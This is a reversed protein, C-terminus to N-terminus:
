LSDVTFHTDWACWFPLFTEVNRAPMIFPILYHFYIRSDPQIRLPQLQTIQMLFEFSPIQKEVNFHLTWTCTKYHFYTFSSRISATSHSLYNTLLRCSQPHLSSYVTNFGNPALTSYRKRRYNCHVM